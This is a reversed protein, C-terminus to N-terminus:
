LMGTLRILWLPSAEVLAAEISKDVGTLIALGVALLAAGIMAKGWRGAGIMRDRWRMLAARSMLGLLALTLGTGLGFLLMTLTVAALSEGRAALVTAAGLTPGVCPTWVAGLLLGLALQGGLGGTGFGGLRENVWSGAPGAAFALQTQLRPVLLALGVGVLALAAVMRFVSGQLGAAFGASALLGGIVALSLGVGLALAAPAWRHEAAASALIMPVLPLVCPSLITLVGAIFALGFTAM